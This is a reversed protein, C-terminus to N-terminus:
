IVVSVKWEEAVHFVNIGCHVHHFCACCFFASPGCKRCQLTAPVESCKTCAQNLPMAESEVVAHLLKARVEEWASANAERQLKHLSPGESCGEDFKDDSLLHFDISPEVPESTSQSCDNNKSIQWPTSLAQRYVVRKQVQGSSSHQKVKLSPLKLNLHAM